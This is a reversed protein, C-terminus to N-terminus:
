IKFSRLRALPHAQTQIRNIGFMFYLLAGGFPFFLCVSIWGLAARPDRKYLIAHITAFIALSFHLIVIAWHWAFIQIISTVNTLLQNIDINM